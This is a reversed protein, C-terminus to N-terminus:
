WISVSCSAILLRVPSSRVQAADFQAALQKAAISSTLSTLISLSAGLAVVKAVTMLQRM